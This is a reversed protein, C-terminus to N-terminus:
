HIFDSIFFASFSAYAFRQKYVEPKGPRYQVKGDEPETHIDAHYIVRTEAFIDVTFENEVPQLM